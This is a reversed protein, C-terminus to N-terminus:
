EDAEEKKLVLSLVVSENSDCKICFDSVEYDSYKDFFEQMEDRDSACGEIDEGEIYYEIGTPYVGLHKNWLDGLTNITIM